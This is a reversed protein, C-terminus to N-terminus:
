RGIKIQSWVRNLERRSKVDLDQLAFLKGQNPNLMIVPNAKIHPQFFAEAAKVPNNAGIENSIEAANKGDLMFNIFRHALDPRAAHKLITMNDVALVNGENQLRYALKFPRKAKIADQQAQFLDNSYGHAVWINGVTLEKIYSQNNFAAWYPKAKRIVEAAAKWDAPNVSNANKGLYLLAASMLERQSDLVTVKGKIKALIAPDFILGWSNAAALVGAKQLQTENYGLLTISVLTPAAFRNGPDFPENLKLYAPNLNKWNAIQARDLAQLKGQKILTNVAFATPFVMDYGKAGAALKALMEENDGYYDQKLTCKCYQEFRKVTDPSLANNWNYISLVDAALASGWALALFATLLLKKM